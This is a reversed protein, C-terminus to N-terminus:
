SIIEPEPSEPLPPTKVKFLDDWNALIEDRMKKQEAEIEKRHEKQYQIQKERQEEIQERM